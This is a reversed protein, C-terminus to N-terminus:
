NGGLSFNVTIQTEVEVPEGNLIYPRYRWQRVAEVAASVLMPPGSVVRLNEIGGQKSIVAQLLVQGQIRASKALSPYTPVVKYALSGESMQSVHIPQAKPASAPPSPMIPRVAAGPSGLIGDPIGPGTTGPIYSGVSSGFQPAAEEDAPRDLHSQPSPRLVIVTSRREISAPGAHPRTQPAEGPQGLSVPVSVHRFSPSGSPHLLPVILLIAVAVVQLGFSAFTTIGRRSRDEWTPHVATTFM